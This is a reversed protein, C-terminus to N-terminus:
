IQDGQMSERLARRREMTRQLYQTSKEPCMMAKATEDFVECFAAALDAVLEPVKARLVDQQVSGDDAIYARKGLKEGISDLLGQYYRMGNYYELGRAQWSDPDQGSDIYKRAAVIVAIYGAEGKDYAEVADKFTKYKESM